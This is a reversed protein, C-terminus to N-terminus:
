KETLYKEVEEEIIQNVYGIIFPSTLAKHLIEQKIESNLDEGGCVDIDNESWLNKTYYGRNELINKGLETDNKSYYNDESLKELELNILATPDKERIKNAINKYEELLKEIKVM